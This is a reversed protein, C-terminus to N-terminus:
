YKIADIWYEVIMVMAMTDLECYKLLASAIRDSEFESMETFQMRSYATMAAGGNDLSNSGLISDIQEFEYDTFIPPLQKYPDKPNGNKDKIIWTHDKFNLSQIGSSSGYIPKSYKSQLYSSEFLVAPLVKKISVSGKTLPHYYFKKVLDWLDVMNRPGVWKEDPGSTISEIFQILEKSDEISESSDLIQKRIQCLVTNEHPAFRLITGTDSSLANKLARVFEFNPFKGKERYIFQTKHVISGDSNLIHHSFQFAIQEYPHRGKNFPLAVMSTEFDICHLPFQWSNIESKLGSLDIYPTKDHNKEKEVQLWQRQSSSLGISDSKKSPTIDEETLQDLFLIGQKMLKESKRFSWLDFIPSRSYLESPNKVTNHWCEAFGNKLNKQEADSNRFECNKCQQGISTETKNGTTVLKSFYQILESFSYKDFYIQNQLYEIEADVNVQVLIENGLDEKKLNNKIIVKSRGTEDQSILFNQNLAEVSATKSKDVFMMYATVNLDPYSKNIVYKQFAIDILYEQWESKITGKKTFFSDHTNPDFSKAKVEILKLSNKNKQIIDARLFLDEFCFAAEFINTNENKLLQDTQNLSENKDLTKIEIGNPIYMQALAGVQFGGEALAELFSNEKNKNAYEPRDQFYLKTPCQTGIKFKSKTLYKKSSLKAM